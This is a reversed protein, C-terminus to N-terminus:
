DCSRKQIYDNLRLRDSKYPESDYLSNSATSVISAGLGETDLTYYVWKGARRDTVLGVSKLKAMQRSVTPQPLKLVETLECVCREGHSLLVAIRLRTPDGLAKFHDHPKM